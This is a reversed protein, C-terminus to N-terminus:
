ININNKLHHSFKNKNIKFNVLRCPIRTKWRFVNFFCQIFESYIIRIERFFFRDFKLIRRRNKLNTHWCYEGHRRPFMCDINITLWYNFIYKNKIKLLFLDFRDLENMRWLLFYFLYTIFILFKLESTFPFPVPKTLYIFDHSSAYM